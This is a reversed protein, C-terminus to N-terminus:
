KISEQHLKICEVLYFIELENKTKLKIEPSSIDHIRVSERSIDDEQFVNQQMKSSLIRESSLAIPEEIDL